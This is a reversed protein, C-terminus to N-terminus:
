YVLVTTGQPAGWSDWIWNMAGNTVRVCGHSAPSPPVSGSGHVAIGGTFFKPRWMSGLELSSEYNADVQRGVQFTGSPTRATYTRGKAEYREGNGSSANFVKTVHGDDVALVLQRDIDIEIVHGSTSQASPRVGQDLAAQTAPGVRGDRSIGAAKQLAWVAQQTGPGFDGDPTAGWYGLDVLRQQLATVREGTSGRVLEVTAPDPAPEVPPPEVPPPEVAPPAPEVTPTPTPALVEPSPSPPASPTTTPRPTARPSAEPSVSGAAGPGGDVRPGLADCGSVLLMALLAATAAAWTKRTSRDRM